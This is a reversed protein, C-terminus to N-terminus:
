LHPLLYLKFIIWFPRIESKWPSRVKVKVKSGPMTMVKKWREDLVVQIGFKMSISSVKQPRVSTCVCPRVSPFNGGMTNPRSGFNLLRGLFLFSAVNDMLWVIYSSTRCNVFHTCQFLLMKRGVCHYHCIPQLCDSARHWKCNGVTAINVVAPHSLICLIDFAKNKLFRFWEIIINCVFEISGNPCQPV